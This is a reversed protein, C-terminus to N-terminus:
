CAALWDAPIEHSSLLCSVPISSKAVFNNNMFISAAGALFTFETTNKVRAQEFAVYTLVNMDAVLTTIM